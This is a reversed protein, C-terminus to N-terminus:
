LSNSNNPTNEEDTFISNGISSVSEVHNFFQACEGHVEKRKEESVRNQLFFSYIRETFYLAFKKEIEVYDEHYSIDRNIRISNLINLTERLIDKYNSEDLLIKTNIMEVVEDYENNEFHIRIENKIEETM